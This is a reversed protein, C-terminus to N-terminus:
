SAELIKLLKIASHNDKYIDLAKHCYKKAKDYQQRKYYTKAKQMMLSSRYMKNSLMIGIAYLISPLAILLVLPFVTAGIIMSLIGIGFWKFIKNTVEIPLKPSSTNLDHIINKDYTQEQIVKRQDLNNNQKFSYNKSYRIGGAGVSTRVGRKSIGVKAGKPGISLSPGNKSINLGVNKGLKISKRFSFGM